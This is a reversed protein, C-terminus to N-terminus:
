TGSEHADGSQFMASQHLAHAPDPEPMLWLGAVVDILIHAVMSAVLSGTVAFPIALALGLIGARIGGIFGQYSHLVGFLICSAIVAPLISGFVPTLAAILFGRFVVEECIGATLSVFVFVIRETRSRPLLQNLLPSEKVNFHRSFAYLALATALGFVTWGLLPRLAIPRLGILAATFDSYAAVTVAAFALFWLSISTSVYVPVRPLQQDRLMRLQAIALAPLPVALLVVFVRAPTPLAATLLWVIVALSLLGLAVLWKMKM